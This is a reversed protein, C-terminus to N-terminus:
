IFYINLGLGSKSAGLGSGIIRVIDNAAFQTFAQPSGTVGTSTNAYMFPYNIAVAAVNGQNTGSTWNFIAEGTGSVAVLISGTATFNSGYSEIKQILGNVAFGGFTAINGNADAILSGPVINLVKVRNPRVM